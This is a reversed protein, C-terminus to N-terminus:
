ARGLRGVRRLSAYRFAALGLVDSIPVAGFDRSDTSHAAYDGEVLCGDARVDAIRKLLLRTRGRPDRVLVVDGIRPRRRPPLVLLCDRERLAPEMSHSRVAM